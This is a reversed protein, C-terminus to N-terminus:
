INSKKKRNSPAVRQASTNPVTITGKVHANSYACVNSRIVLTKFKIENTVNYTGRSKDNIEVWYVTRLKSPETTTDDLLYIIKKINWQQM